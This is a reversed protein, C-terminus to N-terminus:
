RASQLHLYYDNIIELNEYVIFRDQLIKIMRKDLEVCIVKKSAMKINRESM